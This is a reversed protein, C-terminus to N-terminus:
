DYAKWHGNMHAFKATIHHLTCKFVTDEVGSSTIVYLLSWQTQNTTDICHYTMLRIWLLTTYSIEVNSIDILYTLYILYAYNSLGSIWSHVIVCGVMYICLLKRFDDSITFRHDYHHSNILLLKIHIIVM